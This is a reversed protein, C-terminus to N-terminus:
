IFNCLNVSMIFLMDKNKNCHWIEIREGDSYCCCCGCGFKISPFVDDLWRCTCINVICVDGMWINIDRIKHAHQFWQSCHNWIHQRPTKKVGFIVFEIHVSSLEHPFIAFAATEVYRLNALTLLSVLVVVVFFCLACQSVIFKQPIIPCIDDYKIHCRYVECAYTYVTSILFSDSNTSFWWCKTWEEWKM